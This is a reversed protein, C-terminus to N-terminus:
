RHSIELVSLIINTSALYIFIMLLASDQFKVRRIDPLSHFYKTKAGGKRCHREKNTQPNKNNNQPKTQQRTFLLKRQAASICIYIMQHFSSDKIMSHHLFNQHCEELCMQSGIQSPQGKGKSSM